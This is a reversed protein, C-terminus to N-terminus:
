EVDKRPVGDFAKEQDVFCIYLKNQKALYEEKIWRLIFIADITGKGPMYGLQMDDITVTKRLRKELITEDIKMAHEILKGGTYMGCNIVVGRGNMIPIAVSTVWDETIRKGDLIKQCLEILIRIAIDGSALIM